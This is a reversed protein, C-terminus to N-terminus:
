ARAQGPCGSSRRERHRRADSGVRSRLWCARTRARAGTSAACRSSRTRATCRTTTSGSGSCCRFGARACEEDDRGGPDLRRQGDAGAAAWIGGAVGRQGRAGLPQRGPDGARARPVDRRLDGAGGAAAAGHCIAQVRSCPTRTRARAGPPVVGQRAGRRPHRDQRGPRYLRELHRHRRLDAPGLAAGLRLAASAPRRACGPPRWSSRRMSVSRKGHRWCGASLPMVGDYFGPVDFAGTPM